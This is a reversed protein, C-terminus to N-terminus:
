SARSIATSSIRASCGTTRYRHEIFTRAFIAQRDAANWAAGGLRSRPVDPFDIARPDAPDSGVQQPAYGEFPLYDYKQYNVQLLVSTRSGIEYALSPALTLQRRYALDIYSDEDLWAGVFRFTMRDDPTLSGFVDMDARLPRLKRSRAGDAGGFGPQPKKSIVNLTGAVSSQGYLTSTAGKIIEMREYPALDLRARGLM